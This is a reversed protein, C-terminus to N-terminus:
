GPSGWPSTAEDRRGGPHYENIEWQPPRMMMMMVEHPGGVFQPPLMSNGGASFIKVHFNELM